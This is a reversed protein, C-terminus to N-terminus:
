SQFRVLYSLASYQKTQTSLLAPFLNQIYVFYKSLMQCVLGKSPSSFSPHPSIFQAPNICFPLTQHLVNSAACLYGPGLDHLPTSWSLSNHFKLFLHDPILAAYALRTDTLFSPKPEKVHMHICSLTQHLFDGCAGNVARCQQHM